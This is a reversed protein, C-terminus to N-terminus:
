KVIPELNKANKVWIEITKSPPTRRVLNKERNVIRLTQCLYSPNRMSLDTITNVGASELLASYKKGVGNIRLLDGRYVWKLLTAYTVGVKNALHQRGRETAGVRLLDNVTKIGSNRLLGGSKPGIGNITEIGQEMGIPAKRVTFSPPIKNVRMDVLMPEPPLTPLDPPVPMPPLTDSKTHRALGYLTAAIIIWFFANTIGNLLTAVSIGGISLTTQPIKLYESLLQAPPFSPFVLTVGMLLLFAVAFIAKALM